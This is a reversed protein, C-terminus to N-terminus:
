EIIINEKTSDLFLPILEKILKNDKLVIVQNNNLEAFKINRNNNIDILYLYEKNNYNATGAVVYENNDSLTIINSYKIKSM